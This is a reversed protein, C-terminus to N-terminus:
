IIQATCLMISYYKEEFSSGRSPLVIPVKAGLICGAMKAGALYILAKTMINGTTINPVLMIDADGTVPSEFKKIMAAEKSFTLDCSIPGEIYCDGFKGKLCMKKLEAADVTERMKPNVTEIATVAAIKPNDIRLNRFLELANEIIGIKETLTPDIIMGGDTFGMLKHYTPIEMICMHSMIGGKGIGTEKNVVEKLFTGTEMKGKMLFSGKGKRILEVAKFAAEDDESAEVINTEKIDYSLAKGIESIGSKKGVLIYDIVGNEHAKLVAELTHEDHAGAVVATKSGDGCSVGNVLEDFDRYVM